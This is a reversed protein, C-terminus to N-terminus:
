PAPPAVPSWAAGGYWRVHRYIIHRRCWGVGGAELMDLLCLRDVDARTMPRFTWAGDLSDAVWLGGHRYASDHCYYAYPAEDAPFLSRLPPPISGLDTRAEHRDPMYLTGTKGDQWMLPFADSLKGEWWTKRWPWVWLKAEIFTLTLGHRYNCLVGASGTRCEDALICPPQSM